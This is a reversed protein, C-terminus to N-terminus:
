TLRVVDELFLLSYDGHGFVTLRLESDLHVLGELGPYHEPVVVAIRFKEIWGCVRYKIGESRQHLATHQIIRTSFSCVTGEDPSRYFNYRTEKGVEGFLPLPQNAALEV